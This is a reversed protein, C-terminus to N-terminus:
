AYFGYGATNLLRIAGELKKGDDGARAPDYLWGLTLLVAEKIVKPVAASDGYGCVFRITIPYERCQTAPWNQNYALEVTGRQRHPTRVTYISTSLTQQDGNTDYYKIWTVSSLPPRPIALQGCWWKSVSMEYTASLIQRSGMIEEQVYHTAAEISSEISNNEVTLDSDIRLHLKAEDYEFLLGSAPTILTLPTVDVRSSYATRESYRESYVGNM